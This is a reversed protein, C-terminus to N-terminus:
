RAPTKAGRTNGHYKVQMCPGHAKLPSHAYWREENYVEFTTINDALMQSINAIVKESMGPSSCLDCFLVSLHRCFQYYEFVLRLVRIFIRTHTVSKCTREEDFLIDSVIQLCCSLFEWKEQQPSIASIIAKMAAPHLLIDQITEGLSKTVLTGTWTNIFENLKVRSKM